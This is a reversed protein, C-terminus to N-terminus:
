ESAVVGASVLATRLAELGDVIQQVEAQAPPDSLITTLAAVHAAQYVLGAKDTSAVQSQPVVPSFPGEAPGILISPATVQGSFRGGISPVYSPDASATGISAVQEGALSNIAGVLRRIVANMAAYNLDEDSSFEQIIIQAM